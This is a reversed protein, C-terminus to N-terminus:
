APFTFVGTRKVEMGELDRTTPVQYEALRILGERPFYDRGPDGILVRIGRAHAEQLWTLARGALPQEYCVDGALILDATRASDRTAIGPPRGGLLDRSTVAISVGNARANLAIAERSFPDVDAALAFAAGGKISAIACLGSGAAFDLVRKGAVQEGGDLLYRAIAQGGAWAFAWFPPPLDPQELVEATLRWLQMPEDALHLQLEPVLPPQQLRTHELIFDRM